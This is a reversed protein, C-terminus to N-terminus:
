LADHRFGGNGVLSAIREELTQATRAMFETAEPRL